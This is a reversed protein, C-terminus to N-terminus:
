RRAWLSGFGLASLIRNRQQRRRTRVFLRDQMRNEGKLHSSVFGGLFSFAAWGAGDRLVLKGSKGLVFLPSSWTFYEARGREWLVRSKCIAGGTPRRHIVRYQTFSRTRWGKSWASVEDITDWGIGTALGGIQEFCARRYMKLAGRVHYEPQRELELGHPTEIYLGGGAIGLEPDKAFEELINRNYDPPFLLDADYRALFAFPQDIANLAVPLASEGGPKREARPPLQVLTIFSIKRALETIIAPTGDTSGDDVIVWQKPPVDQMAVSEIMGTIYEAEDRVPTVLVYSSYMLFRWDQAKRM